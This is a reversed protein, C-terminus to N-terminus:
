HGTWVPGFPFTFLREVERSNLDAVYNRIALTDPHDSGLIQEASRPLEQFLRLAKTADGCRATWYAICSRTVLVDPHDPGLIRGRDPLLEEFLRLAEPADGCWGTWGAINGRTDLTDVHDPGLVGERDPLLERFLRLAERANGHEGTWFAVEYRATLTAHHNPGLAAECDRFLEKALRLAEAVDGHEGTWYAICRRTWLTDPYGPGPVRELDPLLEKSLRLAEGVNGCWGTWFAINGRTALTDRHDAGQSRRRLLLEDQAHSLARAYEGLDGYDAALVHHIRLRDSDAAPPLAQLEAELGVIQLRTDARPGDIQRLVQAVKSEPLDSASLIPALLQESLAPYGARGVHLALLLRWRSGVVGMDDRKNLEATVQGALELAREQQDPQGLLDIAAWIRAQLGVAAGRAAAAAVTAGILSDNPQANVTRALRMVAASLKDHEQRNQNGPHGDPDLDALAEQAVQYAAAPDSLDELGDVLQCQMSPLRARDQLDARVRHAAQWAVVKEVLRAEPSEGIEVATDLVVKALQPRKGHALAKVQEKIRPSAPDALRVLTEYRRVDRDDNRAGQDLVDVAREAQRVHLAGEAWGLVVAQKSPSARTVEADIVEGVAKVLTIDDNGTELEALREAAAVKFVEALARTRHGILRTAAAPLGPCLQSALDVRAQYSMDPDADVTRVRGETLGYRARSILASQLKGRPDVAAVVLVRGDIREILNEILVVALDPELRDADDIIVVVPVSVSMAAVARATKAVTGEQGAASDDWRKDAAGAGISAVLLLVLGALPVPFLGGVGLGLLIAGGLRDVGLVEALSPPIRADSFLDRLESAQEGLGDPLRSGDVRVVICVADDVEVAAAFRDLLHTRGWQSPVPLLVARSNVERRSLDEWWEILEDLATEHRDSDEVM